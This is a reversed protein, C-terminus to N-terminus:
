QIKATEENMKSIGEEVTCERNMIMAHYTGLVENIQSLEKGYPAELYMKTVTLAEKTQEDQPFGEMSLIEEIIEDNSIAPFNGTKALIKAGEEGTVWNIFKWAEDKNESEEAITLGTIAGLTTGPEM